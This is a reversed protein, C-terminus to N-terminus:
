NITMQGYCFARFIVKLLMGGTRCIWHFMSYQKIQQAAKSVDHGGDKIDNGYIACKRSAINRTGM